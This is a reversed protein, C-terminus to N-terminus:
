MRALGKWPAEFTSQAKKLEVTLTVGQESREISWDYDGVERCVEAWLCCRLLVDCGCQVTLMNGQMLLVNFSKSTVHPPLGPITITVDDITQTWTIHPPIEAPTGEDKRPSLPRPKDFEQPAIVGVEPQGLFELWDDGTTISQDKAVIIIKDTKFAVRCNEDADFLTSSRRLRRTLTCLINAVVCACSRCKIKAAKGSSKSTGWEAVDINEMDTVDLDTVLLVRDGDYGSVVLPYIQKIHSARTHHHLAALCFM